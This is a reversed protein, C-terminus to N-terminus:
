HGWIDTSMNPVLQSWQRLMTWYIMVDVSVLLSTLVSLGPRGGRSECLEQVIHPGPLWITLKHPGSLWITLKHPGSLWVTLKHPGSLWITLTPGFTMYNTLSNTSQAWDALLTLCHGYVVVKSWLPCGFSFRVPTRRSVLSVSNLAEGSPSWLSGAASLWMWWYWLAVRRLVIRSALSPPTEHRGIRKTMWSLTQKEGISM